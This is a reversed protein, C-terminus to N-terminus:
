VHSDPYDRLVQWAILRGSKDGSHLYRSFAFRTPGKGFAVATVPANHRALTFAVEGKGGNAQLDFIYINHDASGVALYRGTPNFAIALIDSEFQHNTLVLRRNAYIQLLPGKAVALKYGNPSFTIADGARASSLNIPNVSANLPTNWLLAGSNNSVTALQDFRPNIAVSEATGYRTDSQYLERRLAGEFDFVRGANDSTVTAIYQGSPDVDLDQVGGGRAPFIEVTEVTPGIVTLNAIRVTGGFTGSIIQHKKPHFVVSSVAGLDGTYVLDIAKGNDRWFRVTTDRSATALAAQLRQSSYPAVAIDTIEETHLEKHHRFVFQTISAVPDELRIKSLAHWTRPGVIGDVTLGMYSQFPRIGYHQMANSFDGDVTMFHGPAALAEQVKTVLQGRSGERLIPMNVPAGTYLALWTRTGVIGDETLFMRYQFLRVVYDTESDFTGSSVAPSVYRKLLAQLEAVDAHHSGLRLTPKKIKSVQIHAAGSVTSLSVNSASIAQM